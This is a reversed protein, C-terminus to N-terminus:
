TARLAVSLIQQHRAKWSNAELFALRDPEAQRGLALADDLVDVFDDVTDTLLVRDSINRCPALDISLVPCGAALYEYIKLPSMAETLETRQHSLLALDCNRISAALEARGVQDHVHVNPLELVRDLYGADARIGLLVVHLDPRAKALVALGEADLRSDLTGVYIARPHPIAQLWPPAEPMPGTWEAPEVGNPVVAAPGTPEIRDIIKQSVAVVARGSAQMSRYAARIAPWWPERSPLAAWDDRAYFTVPGAWDFPCFAGMLPNATIVAPHVLGRGRATEGVKRDFERFASRVKPVDTPDQRRVRLPTYLTHEDDAPFRADGKGLVTRLARVPASRFPNVVLLRRVQESVMLSQLLRDPPRNMGRHVADGYTEFTFTFVIDRAIAGAPASGAASDHPRIGTTM